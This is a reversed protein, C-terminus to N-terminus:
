QTMVHISRLEKVKDILPTEHFFLLMEEMMMTVVRVLRFKVHQSKRITVESGLTKKVLFRNSKDFFLNAAEMM